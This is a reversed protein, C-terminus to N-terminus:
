WAKPSLTIKERVAVVRKVAWSIPPDKKNISIAVGQMHSIVTAIAQTLAITSDCHSCVTLVLNITHQGPCAPCPSTHCTDPPM